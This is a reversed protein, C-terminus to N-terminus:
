EAAIKDVPKLNRKQPKRSTFPRRRSTASEPQWFRLLFLYLLTFVAPGVIETHFWGDTRLGSRIWLLAIPLIWLNGQRVGKMIEGGIVSFLCGLGIAMAIVYTWGGNWYAEAYLGIGFSAGAEGTMRQYLGVGSEIIPKGPWLVRPIWAIWALRLSTGPEGEDFQKMAFAQNNAYNLRGLWDYNSELDKFEDRSEAFSRVVAAREQLRSDGVQQRRAFGIFFTSAVYLLMLLFLPWPNRFVRHRYNLYALVTAFAPQLIASKSLTLVGLGFEFAAMTWFWTWWGGGRWFALTALLIYAATAFNGIWGLASSPLMQLYDFTVLVNFIIPPVGIVLFTRIAAAMNVEDLWNGSENQFKQRKWLVFYTLFTLTVGLANLLTVRVIDQTEMHWLEHLYVIIAPDGVYYVLPGIGYYLACALLFWPMPIWIAATDQRFLRFALLVQSAAFAVLGGCLWADRVPLSSALRVLLFAGFGAILGKVLSAGFTDWSLAEPAAQPRLRPVRFGSNSGM